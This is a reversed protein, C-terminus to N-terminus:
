AGAGSRDRANRSAHRVSDADPSPPSGSVAAGGARGLCATTSRASSTTSRRGRRTARRRSRDGRRRLAGRQVRARPRAAAAGRTGGRRRAGHARSRDPNARSRPRALGRAAPRAGRGVCRRGRARPRRRRSPPRPSPAQGDARRRCLRARAGRVVRARAGRDVLARPRRREVTGDRDARRDADCADARGDARNRRHRRPQAPHAAGRHQTHPGPDGPHRRRRRQASRQWGARAGRGTTVAHPRVPADLGPREPLDRAVRARRPEVRPLTGNADLTGPTFGVAVRAPIGLTRAM